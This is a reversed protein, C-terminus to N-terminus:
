LDEGEASGQAEAEVRALVPPAPQLSLARREQLRQWLLQLREALSMANPAYHRRLAALDILEPGGALEVWWSESDQAQHLAFGHELRGDPWELALLSHPFSSAIIELNEDVVTVPQFILEGDSLRLEQVRPPWIELLAHRASVVLLAM